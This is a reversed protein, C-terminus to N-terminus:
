QRFIGRLGGAILLAIQGLILLSSHGTYALYRPRWEPHYKDKFAHVGQFNYFREGRVYIYAGIKNWLPALRHTQFGALPAMGLNFYRYGQEKGWQLLHGFLFDMTSTPANDLHRMLDVSLETKDATAWINAFAILVDGKYVLALPFRTIYDRQYFGLSFAKEKGQKCHLWQNSVFRLHPEIAAVDQAVSFKFSLGDRTGRAMTQRLTRYRSGQLTFDQLAIYAEEGLRVFQFGADIYYPLYDTSAQYFAMQRRYQDALERFQWILGACNKKNGVPDGLAILSTGMQGYMIFADRAQNFLLYKDGTLALNASTSPSTQIIQTALALDAASPSHLPAAAPRFFQHLGLGFAIVSLLLTSRLSRSADGSIDLAIQWWLYHDYEVYRYAFFLLWTVAALTLVIFLWWGWGIDLMSIKSRRYFMRRSFYVLPFIGSLLLAEEYDFGKSLSVAIGGMLLILTAAYASDIRQYVGHAVVLLGLGIISSLLHSGEIMGMPLYDALVELRGTAAPTAGSVLLVGGALAILGALVTPMVYHALRMMARTPRKIPRLLAPLVTQMEAVVLICAAIVFPLVYYVLRYLVLAAMIAGSPVSDSLGALMVSEFVGLGAPVHSVLGLWLAASFVTLFPLFELTDPIVLLQYLVSGTALIDIFGILYQGVLLAPSPLHFVRDRWAITRQFSAFIPLASCFILVLSAGGVLVSQSLGTLRSLLASDYLLGCSAVLSTGLLFTATSFLSIKAVTVPAVGLERYSRLRLAGGSLLAFGVMNSIANTLSAAIAIAKLQLPQQLMRCALYDYGVLAAYSVLVGLLAGLLSPLAVGEVQDLLEYWHTDAVLLHGFYLCAVVLAARLFLLILNLWSL